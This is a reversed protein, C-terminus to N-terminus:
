EKLLMWWWFGDRSSHARSKRAEVDVLCSMSIRTNARQYRLPFGIMSLSLTGVGINFAVGCLRARMGVGNIDLFFFQSGGKM